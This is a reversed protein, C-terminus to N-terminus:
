FANKFHNLSGEKKGKRWKDRMENRFSSQKDREQNRAEERREPSDFSLLPRRYNVCSGTQECPGACGTRKM